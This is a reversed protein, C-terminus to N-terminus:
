YCLLLIFKKTGKLGSFGPGKEKAYYIPLHCPLQVSVGGEGGCWGYDIRFTTVFSEDASYM